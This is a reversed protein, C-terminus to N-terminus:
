SMYQRTQQRHCSLCSPCVSNTPTHWTSSALPRSLTFFAFSVRSVLTLLTQETDSHKHPHTHSYLNTLIAQQAVFTQINRRVHLVSVAPLQKKAYLMSKRICTINCLHQLSNTHCQAHKCSEDISNRRERHICTVRFSCSDSTSRTSCSWGRREETSCCSM